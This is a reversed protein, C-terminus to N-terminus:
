ANIWVNVKENDRSRLVCHTFHIRINPQKINKRYKTHKTSCKEEVEYSNNPHTIHSITSEKWASYGEGLCWRWYPYKQGVEHESPTSSFWLSSWWSLRNWIRCEHWPSVLHLLANHVWGRPETVPSPFTLSLSFQRVYLDVVNEHLKRILSLTRWSPRFVLDANRVLCM